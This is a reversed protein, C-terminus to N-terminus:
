PQVGEKRRLLAAKVEGMFRMDFNTFSPMGALRLGMM